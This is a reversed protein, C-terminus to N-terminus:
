ACSQCREQGWVRPSSGRDNKANKGLTRKDGCAHPHDKGRTKVAQFPLRTWVRPSSGICLQVSIISLCKDGCAHPHDAKFSKSSLTIASTGVRTPIIRKRMTHSSLSPEQGWVRPSSGIDNKCGGEAGFKDGCAHPHDRQQSSSTSTTKRTGVRTPIIGNATGSHDDTKDQGWM